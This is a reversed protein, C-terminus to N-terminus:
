DVLLSTYSSIALAMDLAVYKELTVILQTKSPSSLPAGLIELLFESKIKMYGAIYWRADLGIEFHKIGILSANNFYSQDFRSEFLHKWHEKQKIKLHDIMQSTLPLNINSRRVDAYFGEIIEPARHEILPWIEEADRRSRGDIALFRLLEEMVTM